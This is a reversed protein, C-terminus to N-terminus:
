GQEIKNNMEEDNVPQRNWKGKESVAFCTKREIPQRRHPRRAQWRVVAVIQPNHVGHPGADHYQHVRQAKPKRPYLFAPAVPPEAIQSRPERSKGIRVESRAKDRELLLTIRTHWATPPRRGQQAGTVPRSEDQM